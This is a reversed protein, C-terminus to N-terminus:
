KFSITELQDIPVSIKASGKGVKISGLFQVELRKKAAIELGKSIALMPEKKYLKKLDLKINVPMNFDAIAPMSTDYNQKITAVEVSDVSATMDTNALDLSFANPNHIVMDANIEIFDRNMQVVDVNSVSKITPEEISNCATLFLVISSLILLHKM